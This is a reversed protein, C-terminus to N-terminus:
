SQVKKLLFSTCQKRRILFDMLMSIYCCLRRTKQAPDVWRPLITQKIRPLILVQWVKFFILVNQQTPQHSPTPPLLIIDKRM